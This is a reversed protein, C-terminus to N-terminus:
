LLALLQPALSALAPGLQKVLDLGWDLWSDAEKRSAPPASELETEETKVLRLVQEILAQYDPDSAPRSNPHRPPKRSPKASRAASAAQKQRSRKPQRRKRDM